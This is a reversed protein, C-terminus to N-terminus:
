PMAMTMSRIQPGESRQSRLASYLARVRTEIEASRAQKQVLSDLQDDLGVLRDLREAVRQPPPKQPDVGPLLDMVEDLVALDHEVLESRRSIDHLLVSFNRVEQWLHTGDELEPAPKQLWDVIERHLERAMRRDLARLRAFGHRGTLRALSADAAELNRALGNSRETIAGLDSRFGATLERVALSEELLDLHGTASPTDLARALQSEVACLGRILDHQACELAELHVWLDGSEELRVFARRRHELEGRVVCCLDMLGPAAVASPLDVPTLVEESAKGLDSGLQGVLGIAEGLLRVTKPIVRERVKSLDAGDLASVEITRVEDVLGAFRQLISNEM